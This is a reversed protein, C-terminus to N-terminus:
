KYIKGKKLILKNNKIFEKHDKKFSNLDIENEELHNIKIELQTPELCNKYNEFKLLYSVTATHMTKRVKQYDCYADAALFFPFLFLSNKKLIAATYGHNINNFFIQSPFNM